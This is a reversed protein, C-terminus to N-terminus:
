AHLNSMGMAMLHPTGPRVPFPLRDISILGSPSRTTILRSTASSFVAPPMRSADRQVFHNERPVVKGTPPYVKGKGRAFEQATVRGCLWSGAGPQEAVLQDHLTEFLGGVVNSKPRWRSGHIRGDISCVMHCLVYPKM